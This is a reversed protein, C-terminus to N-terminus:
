DGAKLFVEPELSEAAADIMDIVTQLSGWLHNNKDGDRHDLLEAVASVINQARFIRTTVKELREEIVDRTPIPKEAKAPQASPDIGPRIPTVNGGSM